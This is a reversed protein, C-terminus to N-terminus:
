FYATVQLGIRHASYSGFDASSSVVNSRTLRYSYSFEPQFYDSLRWSLSSNFEYDDDIRRYHSVDLPKASRFNQHQYDISGSAIIRGRSDCKFRLGFEALRANYSIDKVLANASDRGAARSQALGFGGYINARRSVEYTLRASETVTSNDREDFPFKYNSFGLDLNVRGDLRPTLATGFELGYTLRGFDAAAYRVGIPRGVMPRWYLNRLNFKPLWGFSLEAYSHGIIRRVEAGWQTYRRFSNLAFFTADGKLRLRWMGRKRRGYEYTLRAAITTARDNLSSIGFRQNSPVSDFLARDNDSYNLINNDFGETMYGYLHLRSRSRRSEVKTSVNASDRPTGAVAYQDDSGAVSIKECYAPTTVASITVVWIAVAGIAAMRLRNMISVPRRRIWIMNFNM